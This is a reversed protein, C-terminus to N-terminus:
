PIIQVWNAMEYVTVPANKLTGDDNLWTQLRFNGGPDANNTIQATIHNTETYYYASGHLSWDSPICYDVLRVDNTGFGSMNNAKLTEDYVSASHHFGTFMGKRTVYTTVDFNAMNIYSNITINYNSMTLSCSDCPITPLGNTITTLTFQLTMAGDNWTPLNDHHLLPFYDVGADGCSNGIKLLIGYMHYHLLNTPDSSYDTWRSDPLLTNYANKYLNYDIVDSFTLTYTAGTKVIRISGATARCTNDYHWQSALLATKKIFFVSWSNNSEQSVFGMGGFSGFQIYSWDVAPFIYNANNFWNLKWRCNTADWTMTVTSPNIIRYGSPGVYCNFSSLCKLSLQWNTNTNSTEFYRPTIHILLYDGSVYTQRAHLDMVRKLTQWNSGQVKPSSNYNTTANAGIVWDELVIPNAEDSLHVYSITIRDAIIAGNFYWAFYQSSGDANLIFKLTREANNDPQLTNNYTIIHSYLGSIIGNSCNMILVTVSGLCTLLDPSYAGYASYASYRFGNIDIYRIVAYLTGGEVPESVVPHFAQIAPDSGVGTVLQIAGTTSGSRWEIVYNTITVGTGIVAGVTLLGILNHSASKFRLHSTTCQTYRPWVQENGSFIKSVQSSGLKIDPPYTINQLFDGM